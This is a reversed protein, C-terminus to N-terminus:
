KISAPPLIRAEDGANGPLGLLSQGTMADANDPSAGDAPISMKVLSSSASIEGSRALRARRSRTGVGFATGVWRLVSVLPITTCAALRAVVGPPAGAANTPPM